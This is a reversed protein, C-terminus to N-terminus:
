GFSYYSLLYPILVPDDTLRIATLRLWCVSYSSVFTSIYILGLVQCIGLLSHLPTCHAWVLLQWFTLGSFPPCGRKYTEHPIYTCSTLKHVCGMPLYPILGNSPRYAFPLELCQWKCRVVRCCATILHFHCIPGVPSGIAMPLTSSVRDDHCAGMYVLQTGNVANIAFLLLLLYMIPLLTSLSM